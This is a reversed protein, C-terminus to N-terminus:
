VKITIEVPSDNNNSMEDLDMLNYKSKSSTKGKSKDLDKIFKLEKSLLSCPKTMDSPRLKDKTCSTQMKGGVKWKPLCFRTM